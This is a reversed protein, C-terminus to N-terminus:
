QQHFCVVITVIWIILNFFYFLLLLIILYFLMLGLQWICTESLDNGNGNQIYYLTNSLCFSLFSFMKIYILNKTNLVSNRYVNHIKYIFQIGQLLFSSFGLFFLDGYKTYICIFLTKLNKILLFTCSKKNACIAILLVNFFLKLSLSQM